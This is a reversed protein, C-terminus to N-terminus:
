RRSAGTVARVRARSRSYGYGIGCCMSFYGLAVFAGLVPRNGIAFTAIGWLVLLGPALVVVAKLMERARRGAERLSM